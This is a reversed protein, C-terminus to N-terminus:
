KKQIAQASADNKSHSGEHLFALGAKALAADEAAKKEKAWKDPSYFKELRKIAKDILRIAPASTAYADVFEQHEKKRGETMEHVMKDTEAIKADLAKTEETLTAIQDSMDSIEATTKEIVTKKDTEIKHGVETENACWAKKHEDSVDEDHLVAVM